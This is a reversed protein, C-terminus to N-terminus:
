RSLKALLEQGDALKITAYLSDNKVELNCVSGVIKDNQVVPLPKNATKFSEAMHHLTETSISDVDSGLLRAEFQPAAKDTLPRNVEVLGKNALSVATRWEHWFCECWDNRGDNQKLSDLFEKQKKTLKM